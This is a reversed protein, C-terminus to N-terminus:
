FNTFLKDDVAENTKSNSFTMINKDGSKEHFALEKLLLTEKSFTVLIHEYLGKLRKHTPILKVVYTDTTEFYYPKFVKENDFDGNVLTLMMDKIREAVQNASSMYVEKGNEQIKLNYGDSVFIYKSPKTKEWRLKKDKKYYFVGFSKQPEKFVSSFKEEVFDSIISNTKKSTEKLKAKFPAADAIPTPEQALLATCCFVLILFCYRIM